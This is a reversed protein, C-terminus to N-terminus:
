RLVLVSAIAFYILISIFDQVITVLPDSGLAPDKGFRHFLYPTFMALLTSITIGAFLSLGVTQAVALSGFVAWAFGFLLFGFFAGMTLGISLEKVFYRRLSVEELVLGRVFLSVAQTGVAANMYAIVPIFYALALTQQLIPEFRSAIVTILLGGAFGVLLWPLRLRLISSARAKFINIIKEDQLIGARKLLNETHKEHLIKLLAVADVTGLFEGSSAVVPVTDWDRRIALIAVKDEETEPGVTPFDERAVEAVGQDDRANLLLRISAVGRLKRDKPNNLVFIHDASDWKGRRIQDLISGVTQHPYTVPVRTIIHNLATGKKAM